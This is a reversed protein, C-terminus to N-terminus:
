APSQAQPEWSQGNWYAQAGSGDPAPYWGPAPAQQPTGPVPAAFSSMGTPHAACAMVLAVIWGIVTWGLLLNLVAIAGHNSKGRTAAIAWPLMYLFTGLAVLWAIAIVAGNHKQDRVLQSHQMYGPQTV